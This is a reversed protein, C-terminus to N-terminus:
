GRRVRGKRRTIKILKFIRSFAAFGVGSGTRGPLVGRCTSSTIKLGFRHEARRALPEKLAGLNEPSGISLELVKKGLLTELQLSPM